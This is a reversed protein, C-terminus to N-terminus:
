ETRAAGHERLWEDSMPRVTPQRAKRRVAQVVTAALALGAFPILLWKLPPLALTESRVTVTRDREIQAGRRDHAPRSAPCCGLTPTTYERPEASWM